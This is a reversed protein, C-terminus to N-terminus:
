QRLVSIAGMVQVWLGGALIHGATGVPLPNPFTLNVYATWSYYMGAVTHYHHQYYDRNDDWGGHEM